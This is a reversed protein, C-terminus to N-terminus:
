KIEIQETTDTEDNYELIYGTYDEQINVINKYSDDYTIKVTYLADKVDDFSEDLKNSKMYVLEGNDFYFKFGADKFNECYLLKGDIFEYSRTFYSCNSLDDLQERIWNDYSDNGEESSYIINYKNLKPFITYGTVGTSNTITVSIADESNSDNEINEYDNHIIAFVEQNEENDTAQIETMDMNENSYSIIMTINKENKYSDQFMNEFLMATKSTNVNTSRIWFVYIAAIIIVLIILINRIIKFKKM